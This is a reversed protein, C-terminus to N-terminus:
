KRRYNIPRAISFQSDTANPEFVLIAGTHNAGYHSWMLINSFSKTLCLIKSDHLDLVVDSHLKRLFETPDEFLEQFDHQLKNFWSEIRAAKKADNDISPSEAYAQATKHSVLYEEFLNASPGQSTTQKLLDEKSASAKSAKVSCPM